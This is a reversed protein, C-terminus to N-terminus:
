AKTRGEITALLLELSFPKQLFSDLGMRMGARVVFEDSISSMMLFPIEKLKPNSRVQQYFELGNMKGEGFMLDSLILSPEVKEVCELAEEVYERTEVNYGNKKLHMSLSLLLTREDEVILITGKKESTSRSWLIKAEASMHEEISISFKERLMELIEGESKSITGDRWAARLAEVYADVHVQKEIEEHEDPTIGFMSRIKALEQKEGDSLKGDYWMERLLERYMTLCAREDTRPEVMKADMEVTLERQPVAVIVSEATAEAPGIKMRKHILDSYAFAFPNQPDIAYVKAIENLAPAYESKEIHQEAARLLDSVRQLHRDEDQVDPPEDHIAREEAERMQLRVRELFSRAYYNKPDLKLADEIERAAREYDGERAHQYAARLHDAIQGKESHGAPKQKELM